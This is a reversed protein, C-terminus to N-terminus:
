ILDEETCNEYFTGIQVAVQPSPLPKLERQSFFSSETGDPEIGVGSEWYSLYAAGPHGYLASTNQASADLAYEWNNERMCVGYEPHPKKSLILIKAISDADLPHCVSLVLAGDDHPRMAAILDERRHITVTKGTLDVDGAHFLWNAGELSILEHDGNASNMEILRLMAPEYNPWKDPHQSCDKQIFYLLLGLDLKAGDFLLSEVLEIQVPYGINPLGYRELQDEKLHIEVLGKM